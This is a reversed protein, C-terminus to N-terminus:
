VQSSLFRAMTRSLPAFSRASAFPLPSVSPKNHSGAPGLAWKRRVSGPIHNGTNMRTPRGRSPYKTLNAWKWDDPSRCGGLQHFSVLEVKWGAGDAGGGPNYQVMREWDTLCIGCSGPMPNRRDFISELLQFGGEIHICPEACLVKVFARLDDLNGSSSSYKMSFSVFLEDEIIATKQTETSSVWLPGHYGLVYYNGHRREQCLKAIEIGHDPGFYHSNMSARAQYYSLKLESNRFPRLVHDSWPFEFCDRRINEGDKSLLHLTKCQFCYCRGPIEKELRVLFDDRDISRRTKAEPLLCCYLDKCTLSFSIVDEVALHDCISRLIDLPQQLLLSDEQAWKPAIMEEPNRLRQRM